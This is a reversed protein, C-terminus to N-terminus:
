LHPVQGERKIKAAWRMSAGRVERGVAEKARTKSVQGENWLCKGLCVSHSALALSLISAIRLSFVHDPCGSFHHYAHHVRIMPSPGPAVWPM